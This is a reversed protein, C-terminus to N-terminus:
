KELVDVRHDFTRSPKTGLDRLTATIRHRRLFSKDPCPFLVHTGVKTISWRVGAANTGTRARGEVSSKSPLFLRRIQRFRLTGCTQPLRATAPCCHLIAAAVRSVFHVAVVSAVRRRDCNAFRPQRECPEEFVHTKLRSSLNQTPMKIRSIVCRAVHRPV